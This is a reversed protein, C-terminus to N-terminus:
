KSISNEQLRQKEIISALRRAEKEKLIKERLAKQEAIKLRYQKTEEDEDVEPEPEPEPDKSTTDPLNDVTKIEQLNPRTIFINTSIKPKHEFRMQKMPTAASNSLPRPALRKMVSVRSNPQFQQQPPSRFNPDQKPFTSNLQPQPPQPGFMPAPQPPQNPPYFNNQHNEIPVHVPPPNWSNSTNDFHQYPPANPSAHYGPQSYGMNNPPPNQSPYPQQHFDPRPGSFDNFPLQTNQPPQFQNQEPSFNQEPPPRQFHQNEVTVLQSNESFQVRRTPENQQPTHIPPQPEAYDKFLVSFLLSIVGRHQLLLNGLCKLFLLVLNSISDLIVIHRPM